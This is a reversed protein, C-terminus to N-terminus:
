GGSNLIANDVVVFDGRRLWGLAVANITFAMYCASDHNDKGILYLFPPFKLPNTTVFGMICFTNCFYSPMTISPVNGIEPDRRGHQNFVEEGKVSKEDGFNILHPPITSIYLLYDSYTQINSPKYEDLPVKPLKRFNGKYPGVKAFFTSIFSSSIINGTTQYISTIYSQNTRTPDERSLDLLFQQEFLTLCHVGVGEREEGM